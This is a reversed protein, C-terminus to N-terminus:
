KKKKPQNIEGVQRAANYYGANALAVESLIYEEKNNELNKIKLITGIKFESETERFSELAVTAAEMVDPASVTIVEDVVTVEYNYTPEIIDDMYLLKISLYM